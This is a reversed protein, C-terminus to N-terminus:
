GQVGGSAEEERGDLAEDQAEEQLEQAPPAANVYKLLGIGGNLLMVAGAAAFLVAFVVLVYWKTGTADSLNRYLSYAYYLVLAGVFLRLLYSNRKKQLEDQQMNNEKHLSERMITECAAESRAEPAITRPCAIAKAIGAHCKRIQQADM